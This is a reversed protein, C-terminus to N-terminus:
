VFLTSFLHLMLALPHLQLLPQVESRLLIFLFESILNSDHEHLSKFM